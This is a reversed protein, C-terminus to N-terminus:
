SVPSKSLGSRGTRLTPPLVCLETLLRPPADRAAPRCSTRVALDDSVLLLSLM